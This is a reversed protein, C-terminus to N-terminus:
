PRWQRSTVRSPALYVSVAGQRTFQCPIPWQGRAAGRRGFGDYIIVRQPDVRKMITKRDKPGGLGAPIILVEVPGAPVPLDEAALPAGQLWQALAEYSTSDFQNITDSM